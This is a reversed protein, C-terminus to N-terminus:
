KVEGCRDMEFLHIMCEAAEMFPASEEKLAEIDIQDEEAQKQLKELEQIYQNLQKEQSDLRIQLRRSFEDLLYETHAKLQSNFTKEANSLVLNTTEKIRRKKEEGPSMKLVEVFKDDNKSLHEEVYKMITGDLEQEAKKQEIEIIGVLDPFKSRTNERLESFLKAIYEMCSKEIEEVSKKIKDKVKRLEADVDIQNKVEGPDYSSKSFLDIFGSVADEVTDVVDEVKDAIDEIKDKAWDVVGSFFSILGM